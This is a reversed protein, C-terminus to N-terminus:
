CLLFYAYANSNIVRSDPKMVGLNAVYGLLLIGLPFPHLLFGFQHLCSISAMRRGNRCRHNSIM